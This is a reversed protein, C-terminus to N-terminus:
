SLAETHCAPPLVQWGPCQWPRYLMLWWSAMGLSLDSAM